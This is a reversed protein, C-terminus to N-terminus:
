GAVLYAPEHLRRYLAGQFRRDQRRDDLRHELLQGQQLQARVHDVLTGIPVYDYSHLSTSFARPIRSQYIGAVLLNWDARNWAVEVRGGVYDVPNYNNKVM